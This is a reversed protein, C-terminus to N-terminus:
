STDKTRPLIACPDTGGYLADVIAARQKLV